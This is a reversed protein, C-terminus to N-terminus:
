DGTSGFGGGGRAEFTFGGTLLYSVPLFVMQAIRDYKEFSVPHARPYPHYILGVQVEGRYDSDILGPSNIPTIRKKVALGSRPLVVACHTADSFQLFVGTPVLMVDGPRLVFAQRTKLDYGASGKTARTPMLKSLYEGYEDEPDELTITLFESDYFKNVAM